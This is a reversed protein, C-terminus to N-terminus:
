TGQQSFRQNSGSQDLNWAIWAACQERSLVKTPLEFEIEALSHPTSLIGTFLVVEVFGMNLLCSASLKFSGFDFSLGPKVNSYVVTDDPQFGLDRLVEYTNLTPEPNV